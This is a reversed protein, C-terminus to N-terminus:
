CRSGSSASCSRSSCAWRRSTACSGAFSRRDRAEVEWIVSFAMRLSRTMGTASWILTGFAILGAFSTLAGSSELERDVSAQLETGPCHASCGNSSTRARAPPCSPTLLAALLAVFPVLSFLASLRARRRVALRRPARLRRGSLAPGADRTAHAGNGARISASASRRTTMRHPHNAGARGAVISPGISRTDVRRTPRPTAPASAAGPGRSDGARDAADGGGAPACRQGRGDPAGGLAARRPRRLPAARDVLRPQEGLGAVPEDRASRAGSSSWRRGRASRPGGARARRRAPARPRPAPARARCRRRAARRCEHRRRPGRRRRRRAAARARRRAAPPRGASRGRARSGANSCRTARHELLRRQLAHELAHERAAERLGRGLLQQGALLQSPHDAVDGRLSSTRSASCLWVCRARRRRRRGAARGCPSRPRDSPPRPAAATQAAVRAVAGSAVKSSPGRGCSCRGARRSRWGRAPDRQDVERDEVDGRQRDAARDRPAALTRPRRADVRRRRHEGGERRGAPEQQEGDVEHREPPQRTLRGAHAEHADAHGVAAAGRRPQHARQAPERAAVERRDREAGPEQQHQDVVVTAAQLVADRPRQDDM